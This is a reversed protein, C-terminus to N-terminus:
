SSADPSTQPATGIFPSDGITLVTGKGEEHSAQELVALIKLLLSSSSSDIIFRQRRPVDSMTVGRTKTSTKRKPLTTM